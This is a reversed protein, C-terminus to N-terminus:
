SEIERFSEYMKAEVGDSKTRKVSLALYQLVPCEARIPLVLEETFTMPINRRLPPSDMVSDREITELPRISLKELTQGHRSLVADLIKPEISGSVSLEDLPEFSNFFSIANDAYNLKEESRYHRDIGVQLTKLQPFSFDQTITEITKGCLLSCDRHYGGGLTLNFCVDL